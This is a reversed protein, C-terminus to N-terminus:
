AAPGLMPLEREIPVVIQRRFGFNGHSKRNNQLTQVSLELRFFVRQSHHRRGYIEIRERRVPTKGALFEGLSQDRSGTSILPIQEVSVVPFDTPLFRQKTEQHDVLGPLPSGDSKLYTPIRLRGGRGDVWRCGRKSVRFASCPSVQM